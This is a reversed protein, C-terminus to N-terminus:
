VNDSQGELQEVGSFHHLRDRGVARGVKFGDFASTFDERESTGGTGEGTEAPVLRELVYHIDGLAGSGDPQEQYCDIQARYVLAGDSPPAQQVGDDVEVHISLGSSMIMELNYIPSM